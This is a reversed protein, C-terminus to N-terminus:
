DKRPPLETGTEPFDLSTLVLLLTSVPTGTPYDIGTRELLLERLMWPRSPLYRDITADLHIPDVSLIRHPTGKLVLDYTIKNM